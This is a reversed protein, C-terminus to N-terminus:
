RRASSADAPLRRFITWLSFLFGAVATGHADLILGPFGAAAGWGVPLLTGTVTAPEWVGPVDALVHANSRGPALTGYVFLRNPGREETM